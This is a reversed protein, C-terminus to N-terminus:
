KYMHVQLSRFWDTGMPPNRPQWSDRMHSDRLMILQKSYLVDINQDEIEVEIRKAVLHALLIM